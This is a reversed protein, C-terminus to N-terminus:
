IRRCTVRFTTWSLQRHDQFNKMIVAMFTCQLFDVLSLSFLRCLFKVRSDSFDESNTHTILSAILVKTRNKEKVLCALSKFIIEHAKLFIIAQHGKLDTWSLSNLLRGTGM